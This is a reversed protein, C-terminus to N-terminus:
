GLESRDAESADAGLWHRRSLIRRDADIKDAIQRLQGAAVSPLTGTKVLVRVASSATAEHTELRVAPAVKPYGRAPADFAVWPTGSATTRSTEGAAIIANSLVRKRERPLLNFMQRARRLDTLNGSRMARLIAHLLLSNRGLEREVVPRLSALFLGLGNREGPYREHQM